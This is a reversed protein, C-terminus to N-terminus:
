DELKLHMGLMGRDVISLEGTSNMIERLALKGGAIGLVSAVLGLKGILDAEKLAMRIKNDIKPDLLSDM